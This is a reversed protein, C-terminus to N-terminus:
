NATASPQQLTTIISGGPCGKPHLAASLPDGKAEAQGDERNEAPPIDRYLIVASEPSISKVYRTTTIYDLM